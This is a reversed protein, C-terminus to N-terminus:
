KSWTNCRLAPTANRFERYFISTGTASTAAAFALIITMTWKTGNSYDQPNAIEPILSFRGFLGRRESRPVVEIAVHVPASEPDRGLKPDKRSM